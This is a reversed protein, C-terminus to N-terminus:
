LPRTSLKGPLAKADRHYRRCDNCQYRQYRSANTHHFGRKTRSASGCYPCVAEGNYEPDVLRPLNHVYPLLARFVGELLVVDRKNYKAMYQMPTLGEAYESKGHPDLYIRKWLDFDTKIKKEGLLKDALFDLKNYPLRFAKRALLMTDIVRVPPLPELGLLLLRNNLMPIDFGAGNHAVVVDAKRILLALNHVLRSDDQKKVERPSLYDSLVTEEDYWKASWSLMFSEQRLRDHPVYDDAPHWIFALLPATEIDFLLVRHKRPESM